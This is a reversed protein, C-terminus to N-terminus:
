LSERMRPFIDLFAEAGESSLKFTQDRLPDTLYIDVKKSRQTYSIEFEQGKLGDILTLYRFDLSEGSRNVSEAEELIKVVEKSEKKTAELFDPHSLTKGDFTERHAIVRLGEEFAPMWDEFMPTPEEDEKLLTGPVFRASMTETVQQGKKIYTFEYLPISEKENLEHSEAISQISLESFVTNEKSEPDKLGVFEIPHPMFYHGDYSYLIYPRFSKKDYGIAIQQNPMEIGIPEFQAIPHRIVKGDLEIELNGYLAPTVELLTHPFLTIQKGDFDLVDAEALKDKLSSPTQDVSPLRPVRIGESTGVFSPFADVTEAMLQNTYSERCVVYREDGELYTVVKMMYPNLSSVLEERGAIVTQYVTVDGKLETTREGECAALVEKTEHIPVIEGEKSYSEVNWQDEIYDLQIVEIDSTGCASLLSAGVLMAIGRKFVFDGGTM